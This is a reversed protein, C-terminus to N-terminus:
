ALKLHSFYDYMYIPYTQARVLFACIFHLYFLFFRKFFFFTFIPRIQNNTPRTSPYSIPMSYIINLDSSFSLPYYTFSSFSSQRNEETHKLVKRKLSDYFEYFGEFPLIQLLFIIPIDSLLILFHFSFLSSVQQQELWISIM